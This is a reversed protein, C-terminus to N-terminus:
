STRGAKERILANIARSDGEASAFRGARDRGRERLDVIGLEKCM